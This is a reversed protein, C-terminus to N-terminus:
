SRDMKCEDALSYINKLSTDAIANLDYFAEFALSIRKNFLEKDMM